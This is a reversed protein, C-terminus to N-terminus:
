PPPGGSARPPLRFASKALDIRKRYEEPFQERTIEPRGELPRTETTTQSIRSEAGFLAVISYSTQKAPRFGAYHRSYKAGIFEGEPGMSDHWALSDLSLAYRFGTTARAIVADVTSTEIRIPTTPPFGQPFVETPETELPGRFVMPPGEMPEPRTRSFDDYLWRRLTERQGPTLNSFPAGSSSLRQLQAPTLESLFTLAPSFIQEAISRDVTPVASRIIAMDLASYSPVGSSARVYAGADDLTITEKARMHGLLTRLAVRNFRAKRSAEGNVPRVLLWNDPDSVVEGIPSRVSLPVGSQTIFSLLDEHTRLGQYSLGELLAIVGGDSITALLPQKRLKAVQRILPGFTLGIPDREVPDDLLGNIGLDPPRGESEAFSVGFSARIPTGDPLKAVPGGGAAYGVNKRLFAMLQLEKPIELSLGRGSYAQSRSRSRDPLEGSSRAILKGNQDIITLTYSFLLSGRRQVALWTKGTGSALQGPGVELYGGMRVTQGDPTGRNVRAEQLLQLGRHLRQLVAASRNPMPRQVANPTSTLVAREGIYMAALRAEGLLDLLEASARNVPNAQVRYLYEKQDFGSPGTELPALFRAAEKTDIGPLKKNEERIEDLLRRLSDRTRTAEAAEIKRRLEPPRRLILQGDEEQWEAQVLNALKERVEKLPRDKIEIVLPEAAVEASCELKEGSQRVLEIIFRDTRIASSEFTIGTAACSLLLAFEATL